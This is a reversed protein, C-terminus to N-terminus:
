SVRVVRNYGGSFVSMSRLLIPGPLAASFIIIELVTLHDGRRQGNRSEGGEGVEPFPINM